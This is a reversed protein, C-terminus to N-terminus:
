FYNKGDLLIMMPKGIVTNIEWTCLYKHFATIKTASNGAALRPLAAAGPPDCM